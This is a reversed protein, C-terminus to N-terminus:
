FPVGLFAPQIFSSQTIVIVFLWYLPMSIEDHRVMDFTVLGFTVMVHKVMVCRVVDHQVIMESWMM